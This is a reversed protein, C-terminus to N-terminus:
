RSPAATTVWKTKLGKQIVRDKEARAFELVAVASDELDRLTGLVEGRTQFKGVARSFPAREAVAMLPVAAGGAEITELKVVLKWSSDSGYSRQIRVIRGRVAAGEPILVKSGERIDGALRGTVVDGAAAMATDIDQTFVVTFPLGAPLTASSAASIKSSSLDAADPPPDFKLTSEGLFQHCGTYVTRNDDETGDYNIIRMRTETPLLFDADFLRFRRYDLTTTAECVGTEAPIDSTQVTLRVMDLTKSDVLFRGDYGTTVLQKRPNRFRYHSQDEPIRYAFEVLAQGDITKEGLYFFSSQARWPRDRSFSAGPRMIFLSSDVDFILKLMISFSGTSIAGGHVMDLLSRDDFRNEGAWSYIEGGGGVGVDFRLRDSEIPHLKLGGSNDLRVLADCPPKKYNSGPESRKRDITQTCMYKPLRNVTEMVKGRIRLLLEIPDEQAQVSAACRYLLLKVLRL